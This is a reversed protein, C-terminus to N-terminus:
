KIPDFWIEVKTEDFAAPEYFIKEMLFLESLWDNKNVLSFSALHM